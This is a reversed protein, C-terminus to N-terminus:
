LYKKFTHDLHNFWRERCHKGLRTSNKENESKNLEEAIETWKYISAEDKTLQRRKIIESLKDDEESTWSIKQEISKQISFWKFRIKNMDWKPM